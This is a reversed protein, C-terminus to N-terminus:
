VPRTRPDVERDPLRAPHGGDAVHVRRHAVPLDAAGADLNGALHRHAEAEEFGLLRGPGHGLEFGAPDRVAGRAAVDALRNLLGAFFAGAQEDVLPGERGLLRVHEERDRAVHVDALGAV